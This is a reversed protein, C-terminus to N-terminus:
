GIFYAICENMANSKGADNEGIITNSGARFEFWTSKLNKYNIIQLYKLYMGNEKM